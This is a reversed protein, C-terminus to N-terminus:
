IFKYTVHVCITWLGADREVINLLADLLCVYIQVSKRENDWIIDDFPM